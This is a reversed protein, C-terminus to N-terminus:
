QKNREHKTFEQWYRRAAVIDRNQSGKDGGCLLLVVNEGHLGFYVRFGPGFHIRLEFVGDGVPECDAFNGLRLRDIRSFIRAKTPKDRLTDMWEEFPAKGNHEVFIRLTREKPEMSRNDGLLSVIDFLLLM